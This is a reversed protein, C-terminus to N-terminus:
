VSGQEAVERAGQHGLCLPGARWAVNLAWQARAWGVGGNGDGVSGAPSHWWSQLWLVSSGRTLYLGPKGLEPDKSRGRWRSIM